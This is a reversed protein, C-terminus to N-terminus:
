THQPLNRPGATETKDAISSLHAAGPHRPAARPLRTAAALGTRGGRVPLTRCPEAGPVAESMAGRRENHANFFSCQM